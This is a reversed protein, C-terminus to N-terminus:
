ISHIPSSVGLEDAIQNVLRVMAQMMRMPDCYIKLSEIDEILREEDPQFSMRSM